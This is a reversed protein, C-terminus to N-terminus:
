KDYLNSIASLFFAEERTELVAKLPIESKLFESATVQLKKTAFAVEVRENAIKVKEVLEDDFYVGTAVLHSINTELNEKEVFSKQAFLTLVQSQAMLETHKVLIETLESNLASSILHLLETKDVIPNIAFITEEDVGNSLLYTIKHNPFLEEQAVELFDEDLLTDDITILDMENMNTDILFATSLGAVELETHSEMVVAMAKEREKIGLDKSIVVILQNM